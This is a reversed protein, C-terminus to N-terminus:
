PQRKALPEPRSRCLGRVQRRNGFPRFLAELWLVAAFEPGIGKLKVLLVAPEPVTAAPDTAPQADVLADREAEVAKIDAM